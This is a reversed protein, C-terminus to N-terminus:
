AKKALSKCAKKYCPNYNKATELFTIELGMHDCNDPIDFFRINISRPMPGEPPISTRPLTGLLQGLALCLTLVVALARRPAGSRALRRAARTAAGAPGRSFIRM